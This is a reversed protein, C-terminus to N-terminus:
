SEDKPRPLKPMGKPGLLDKIEQPLRDYEEWEKRAKDKRDTHRKRLRKGIQRKKPPQSKRAHGRGPKEHKVGGRAGRKKKGGEEKEAEEAM